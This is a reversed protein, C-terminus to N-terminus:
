VPAPSHRGGAHSSVWQRRCLQGGERWRCVVTRGRVISWHVIFANTVKRMLENGIKMRQMKYINTCQDMDSFPVFVYRLVDSFRRALMDVAGWGAVEPDIGITDPLMGALPLCVPSVYDNIEM